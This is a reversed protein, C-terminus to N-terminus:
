AVQAYEHILGGLRDGRGAEIDTEIFDPLPRLPSAQNLARHPRYADVHDEYETPVKRLHAAKVVLVRDPRRWLQRVFPVVEADIDSAGDAPHHHTRDDGVGTRAWRGGAGGSGVIEAPLLTVM